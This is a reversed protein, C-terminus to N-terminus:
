TVHGRSNTDRFHHFPNRRVVQDMQNPLVTLKRAAYAVKEINELYLNEPGDCPTQPGEGLSIGGKGTTGWDLRM